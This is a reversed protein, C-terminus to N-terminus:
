NLEHILKSVQKEDEITFNVLFFDFQEKAQLDNYPKEELLISHCYDDQHVLYSVRNQNTLMFQQDRCLMCEKKGNNAIQTNVICTKMIMCERHGYIMKGLNVDESFRKKYESKIKEYQINDVEHSVVVSDVNLRKLFRVAYSNTVNFSTDAIRFSDELSNNFDGIQSLLVFEGSFDIDLENVKYGKQFINPKSYLNKRNSFVLFNEDYNDMQSVHDIVIINRDLCKTSINYNEARPLASRKVKIKEEILKFIALRRCENISKLSIFLDEEIDIQFDSIEFPTDKIKSLQTIINEITIPKNISKTNLQESQVEVVHSGHSLRILFPENEKAIFTAQIQLRKYYHKINSQIESLQNKDSTLVVKDNVFVNCKRNIKIEVEDNQYAKSVLLGNKYMKNVMLGVDENKNLIRIGDGQSLDYSLKLCVLNASCKIVKAIEIGMHNPRTSNAIAKGHQNFLYGSTFDRNFLKMLSQKDKFTNKSECHNHYRDIAERYVRVVEAVYEPRKMRGEIKFSHIGAEILEPIHELTYLDKLSLLYDGDTKVKENKSLNTLTYKLRCPQACEGRNGSRGGQFSSMLCQGSTGVCLAGHIFVELEIGVKSCEKILDISSERALVVRAAGQQKMVQCGNKNHVHMQTSCHIEFDPFNEKIMEFLGFDQVIVADVHANYLFRIYELADNLEDEYILTNVTVYVKVNRIHCYAVAECIEDNDFNGAFARAGFRIGGLYIADAGSSVAAVLAEMSGAPALLEIDKM